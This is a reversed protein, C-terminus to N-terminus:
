RDEFEELQSNNKRRSKIDHESRSEEDTDTETKEQSTEHKKLLSPLHQKEVHRRAKQLSSIPGKGTCEVCIWSKKRRIVRDILEQTQEQSWKERPLEPPEYNFSKNHREWEKENTKETSEATALQHVIENLAGIKEEEDTHNWNEILQAAMQRAKQVPDETAQDHKTESNDSM